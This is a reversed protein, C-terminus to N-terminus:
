ELQGGFCVKRPCVIVRRKGAPEDGGGGHGRASAEDDVVHLLVALEHGIGQVEGDGSGDLIM